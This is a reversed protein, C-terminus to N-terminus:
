RNKVLKQRVKKITNILMSERLILLSIAYIIIGSGIILLTHLVSSSLYKDEILCVAFMIGGALVIKWYHRINKLNIYKRVFILMMITVISEAVLTAISAGLVNYRPILILNLILNIVSGSVISITFKVDKEAPVLIQLGFVNSFGIILVIPALIKMVIIVQNVNDIGYQKVGLYWPIFNSSVAIIGFVMPLGVLMVFKSVQSINSKLEDIKGEKVLASNRPIFVAGLSTIVTMSMKVLKEAQDYNGVFSDNDTILGILTKDLTTYISSAITPLFLIFTPIFHRFPKLEKMKIKCTMKPVYVWLSLNSVIVTVGQIVFYKWLDSEVKIFIFICAISLLKIIVNRIAIKGFEENGQLLFTIDFIVSILHMSQLLMLTKYSDKYVNCAILIFYIVLALGTPILRAIFVEWFDKTQNKIDNKDRAILRQAYYGFGLSAFLIFYTVYAYTYSYKGNGDSLLIRSLYPTVLIPVILLFLQYTLNYIYNKKVSKAKKPKSEIVNEEM